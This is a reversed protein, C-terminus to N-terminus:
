HALLKVLNGLIDAVRKVQVWGPLVGILEAIVFPQTCFHLVM